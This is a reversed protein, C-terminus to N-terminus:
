VLSGYWQRILLFDGVEQSRNDSFCMIKPLQWTKPLHWELTSAPETPTSNWKTKTMEMESLDTQTLSITTHITFPFCWYFTRKMNQPATKISFSLFRHSIPESSGGKRASSRLCEQCQFLLGFTTAGQYSQPHSIEKWTM